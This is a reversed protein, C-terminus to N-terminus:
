AMSRRRLLAGLGLASALLWAAGPVPVAAAMFNVTGNSHFNALFSEGSSLTGRLCAMANALSGPAATWAAEPTSECIGAPAVQFGTGYINAIGGFGFIGTAGLQGGRWDFVSGSGMLTVGELSGAQLALVTNTWVNAQNTDIAGDVTVHVPNGGNLYALWSAQLVSGGSGVGITQANSAMRTHDLENGDADRLVGSLTVTPTLLRVNGAGMKLDADIVISGPAELWLDFLTPGFIVSASLDSSDAVAINQGASILVTTFAMTQAIEAANVYDGSGSSPGNGITVELPVALAAHSPMVLALACALAFRMSRECNISSM